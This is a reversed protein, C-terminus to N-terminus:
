IGSIQLGKFDNFSLNAVGGIMAGSGGETVVNAGGTIQIGKLKNRTEAYLGSIQLGTLDNEITSYVANVGFAKLNNIDSGIIGINFYANDKKSQNISVPYIISVNVPLDKGQSFGDSFACILLLFVLFTKYFKVM